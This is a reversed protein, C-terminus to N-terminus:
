RQHHTSTLKRHNHNPDEDLTCHPRLENLIYSHPAYLPRTHKYKRILRFYITLPPLPRSSSPLAVQQQLAESFKMRPKLFGLRLAEINLILTSCPPNSRFLVARRTVISPNFCLDTQKQKSIVSARPFCAHSVGLCPVCFYGARFTRKLYTKKFSVYTFLHRTSQICELTAFLDQFPM